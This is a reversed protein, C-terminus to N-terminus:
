RAFYAVQGEEVLVAVLNGQIGGVSCPDWASGDDLVDGLGRAADEYVQLLNLAEEVRVGGGPDVIVVVEHSVGGSLRLVRVNMHLSVGEGEQLGGSVDLSGSHRVTKVGEDCVDVLRDPFIMRDMM